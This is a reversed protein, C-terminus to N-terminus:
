NTVRERMELDHFYVLSCVLFLSKFIQRSQIMKGKHDLTKKDLGKSYHLKQPSGYRVHWGLSSCIVEAGLLNEHNM